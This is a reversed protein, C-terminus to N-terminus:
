TSVLESPSCSRTRIHIRLNPLMSLNQVSLAGSNVPLMVIFPTSILYVRCRQKDATLISPARMELRFDVVLRRSM